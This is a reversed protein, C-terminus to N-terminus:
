VFPPLREVAGEEKHKPDQGHGQQQRVGQMQDKKDKDGLAVIDNKHETPDQAQVQVVKENGMENAEAQNAKQMAEQYLASTQAQAQAAALSIAGGHPHGDPGRRGGRGHPGPLMRAAIAQPPSRGMVAHTTATATAAVAAATVGQQNEKELKQEQGKEQEATRALLPSERPNQPLQAAGLDFVDRNGNRSSEGFPIADENMEQPQFPAANSEPRLPATMTSPVAPQAAASTPLSAAAAQPESTTRPTVHVAQETIEPALVHEHVLRHTPHSVSDVGHRTNTDANVDTVAAAGVGADASSSNSQDQHEQHQHASPYHQPVHSAQHTEVPVVSPQPHTTSVHISSNLDQAAPPVIPAPVPQSTTHPTPPFPSTASVSYEPGTYHTPQHDFTHHARPIYEDESDPENDSDPREGKGFRLPPPAQFRLDDSVDSPRGEGQDFSMHGPQFSAPLTSRNSPGDFSHEQAEPYPLSMTRPAPAEHPLTSGERPLRHLYGYGVDCGLLGEGGWGEHPVIVIERVHDTQTNYVHLRLPEGINDEVLDYLDGEGRMIGYPTGIVYDMHACLGAKEAPSGPAVDLIHWVVDNIADFMCFRISCGLLGGTGDGWDRTPVLEVRRGAQERTSYIDLALVKGESARMQEHIVANEENLRIGNAAVIYDFFPRIGARYAPSNEKVQLVHYGLRHRGEEGSAVNGM